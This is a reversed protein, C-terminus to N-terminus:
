RADEEEEEEAEGEDVAQQALGVGEADEEDGEEGVVEVVLGAPEEEPEQGEDGDAVVVYGLGDAAEAAGSRLGEGRALGARGLGREGTEEEEEGEHEVQPQEDEEFVGVEQALGEAGEEGGRADVDGRGDAAAVELAHRPLRAVDEQGHADGEEGELREAVGDIDIPAVDAGEVAQEVVGEVDAEEGLEHCAGNDTGAVEDGLNAAGEEDGALHEAGADEVDHGSEELFGDDAVVDGDVEHLADEVLGVEVAAQLVEQGDIAVGELNVAVERAVGVHGDADGEQEPELERLVEVVGVAGGGDGLEPPPPVDAEGGPELVVEVDRQAAVAVALEPLVEVQEGGHEKAPQPVPGREVEDQPAANVPQQQAEVFDPVGEAGEEARQAVEGGLVLGMWGFVAEDGEDAPEEGEVEDCGEPHEETGGGEANGLLHKLLYALMELRLDQELPEGGVLGDGREHKQAIQEVEQGGGEGVLGLREDGVAGEEDLGQEDDEEDPHDDLDLGAVHLGEDVELESRGAGSPPQVGGAQRFCVGAYM